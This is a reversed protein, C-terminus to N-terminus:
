VKGLGEGVVSPLSGYVIGGGLFFNENKRFLSKSGDGVWIM